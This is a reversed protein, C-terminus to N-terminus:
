IVPIHISPSYIPPEYPMLPQLVTGIIAFTRFLKKINNVNVNVHDFHTISPNPDRAFATRSWHIRIAFERATHFHTLDYPRASFDFLNFVNNIEQIKPFSSLNLCLNRLFYLFIIPDM